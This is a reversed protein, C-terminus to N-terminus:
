THTANSMIGEIKAVFSSAANFRAQAEYSWIQRDEYDAIIRLAYTDKLEDVDGDQLLARAGVM